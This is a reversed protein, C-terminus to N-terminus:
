RSGNNFSSSAVETQVSISELGNVGSSTMKFAISRPLYPSEKVQLKHSLKFVDSAFCSGENVNSRLRKCVKCLTM